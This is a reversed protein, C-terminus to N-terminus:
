TVMMFVFQLEKTMFKRSKKTWWVGGIRLILKALASKLRDNEVFFNYYL